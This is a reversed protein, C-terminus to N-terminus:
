SASRLARVYVDELRGSAAGVEQIKVGAEVLMRVAEHAEGTHALRYALGGLPELGMNQVVWTPPDEALRLRLESGAGARSATLRLERVRGAEVMLVRGCVADVDALSHSSMIVTAGSEAQREIVKRLLFCGEIDLGNTPEDLLLIPPHEMIAQALALRQRMGHSYSAVRKTSCPDLGVEEIAADVDAATIARRIGALLRLNSRGSIHDVFPPHESVLGVFPMARYAPGIQCADILGEGTSPVSLGAIIRMLTSKGAGNPGVLGVVEGRAVDLDAACLAIMSGYKKTVGRLRIVSEDVVSM